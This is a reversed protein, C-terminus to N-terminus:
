TAQQVERYVVAQQSAGTKAQHMRGERLNLLLSVADEMEKREKVDPVGVSATKHDSIQRLNTLAKM